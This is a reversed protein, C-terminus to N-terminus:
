IYSKGKSSSVIKKELDLLRKKIDNFEPILYDFPQIIPYRRVCRVWCGVNKTNVSQVGDSFREIYAYGNIYESSSWYWNDDKYLGLIMANVSILKLERITPCGPLKIAEHWTMKQSEAHQEISIHYGGVVGVYISGDELIDGPMYKPKELTM